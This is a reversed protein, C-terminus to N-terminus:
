LKDKVLRFGAHSLLRPSVKRKLVVISWFWQPLSAKYGQVTSFVRGFSDIVPSGKLWEHMNGVMDWVGYPSVGGPYASVSTRWIGHRKSYEPQHEYGFNGRAPDWDKGWPYLRDDIGRAAKLWEEPTPLRAGLWKAMARATDFDIAQPMDLLDQTDAVIAQDTSAEFVAFQGKTVPYRTIYFTPLWAVHQVPVLELVTEADFYGWRPDLVAHPLVNREAATLKDLINSKGANEIEHARQRFKSALSSVAEREVANMNAIGFEAWLKGQNGTRQENSLGANYPGEPIEVWEIDLEM